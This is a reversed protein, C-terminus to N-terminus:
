TKYPLHLHAHTLSAAPPPSPPPPVRSVSDFVLVGCLSTPFFRGFKSTWIECKELSLLQQRATAFCHLVCMKKYFEIKVLVTEPGAPHKQKSTVSSTCKAGQNGKPMRTLTKSHRRYSYKCVDRHSAVGDENCWIMVGGGRVSVEVSRKKMKMLETSKLCTIHLASDAQM